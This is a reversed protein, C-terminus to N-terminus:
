LASANASFDPFGVTNLLSATEPLFPVTPTAPPEHTQGAPHPAPIHINLGGQLAHAGRVTWARDTAFAPPPPRRDDRLEFLTPQQARREAEIQERRVRLIEKWEYRKNDILVYRM